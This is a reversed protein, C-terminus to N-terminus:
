TLKVDGKFVVFVLVIDVIAVYPSFFASGNHAYPLGVLGALWLLLFVVSAGVSLEHCAYGWLLGGWFVAQGIWWAVAPSGM